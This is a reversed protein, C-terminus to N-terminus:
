KLTMIQNDKIASFLEDTSSCKPQKWTKAIRFLAAKSMPTCKDKRIVDIGLLLTAPDYLLETKLKPLVDMSNEM